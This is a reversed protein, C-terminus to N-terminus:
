KKANHLYFGAEQNTYSKFEMYVYQDCSAECKWLCLFLLSRKCQPKRSQEALSHIIKAFEYTEQANEGHRQEVSLM